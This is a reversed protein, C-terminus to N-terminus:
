NDCQNLGYRQKYRQRTNNRQTEDDSVMIFLDQIVELTEPHDCSVTFYEYDEKGNPTTNNRPKFTWGDSEILMRKMIERTTEYEEPTSYIDFLATILCAAAHANLDKEKAKDGEIRFLM